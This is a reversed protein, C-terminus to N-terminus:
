HSPTPFIDGHGSLTKALGAAVKTSAQGSLDSGKFTEVVTVNWPFPVVPYTQYSAVETPKQRFSKWKSIKELSLRQRRKSTTHTQPGADERPFDVEM